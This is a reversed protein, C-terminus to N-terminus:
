FDYRLTLRIEYVSDDRDVFQTRSDDFENFRYLCDSASLCTTRPADGELATAGDIGNAAVDAASVLDAVVIDLTGFRTADVVKGWDSNILNPFNAIDLILKFNNDGVFRGLGPIGPLEQQFRLDWINNWDTITESFAPHVGGVPIGNDEVFQFFGDVDFGSGYVVLPDNVPTPVYLPANGFPSEGNAQGFLANNFGTDFSASWNDGKFLRGFVDVRSQLDAVFNREYAFNFKFSHEIQFPSTRPRLNNRDTTVQGRWNSIGRSSTGESVVEADTFAYNIDFSAGNDYLKALGVSLVTSQAGDANTLKTLNPLDLDDLDAYIPRGDPAVGTPLAAPNDTQGALEWVFGDKARTHVL